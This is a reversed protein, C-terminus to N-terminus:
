FIKDVVWFLGAVGLAAPIVWWPFDLNTNTYKM